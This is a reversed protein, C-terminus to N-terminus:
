VRASFFAARAMWVAAREKHQGCQMVTRRAASSAAKSRDLVGASASSAGADPGGDSPAGGAEVVAGDEVAAGSGDDAGDELAAGAGEADVVAPESGVDKRRGTSGIGVAGKAVEAATEGEVFAVADTVGEVGVGGTGVEVASRVTFSLVGMSTPRLMRDSVYKGLRIAPMAISSASVRGRAIGIPPGHIVAAMRFGSSQPQATKPESEARWSMPAPMKVRPTRRGPSGGGFFVVWVQCM